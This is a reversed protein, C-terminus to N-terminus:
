PSRVCRFGFNYNWYEPSLNFRYASRVDNGGSAWSGGRLVRWIGTAPGQPNISPSTSYYGGDYWDNVWEWVNGAMDMVGYPSAGSPYAGVRSTDGVCWYNYNLRGCDPADNGWPYKRTDSSGRAAKEWEAETPLRKGEWVCFASAQSWNVNIVPYDAYTSTGYYPSRTYSNVSWPATCGGADVCVKYRANTVEYKDIYYGDLTVTHLPLEDTQWDYVNCSNEAPNSSDCGMQFSGAPILIEEATDSGPSTATPVATPPVATPPVATPPVATPPVATPPVATPPVATPPVATATATPTPPAAGVRMTLLQTVNYEKGRVTAQAAFQVTFSKGGDSARPTWNFIGGSYTSGGPVGTVTPYLLAIEYHDGRFPVDVKYITKVPIRIQQGVTVDIESVPVTKQFQGLPTIFPFEESPPIISVNAHDYGAEVLGVCSYCGPQFPNGQGVVLYGKGLRQAAYNRAERQQEATAGAKRRAGLYFECTADLFQGLTQTRVGHGEGLCAATVPSDSWRNAEIIQEETGVTDSYIGTHGPFWVAQGTCNPANGHMRVLIDGPRLFKGPIEMALYLPKDIYYFQWRPLHEVRVSVGNAALDLAVIEQAEWIDTTEAYAVVNMFQEDFEAAPEEYTLTLTLPATIEIGEGDLSVATMGDTALSTGSIPRQVTITTDRALAGPPILLSADGATVTGGSEAQVYVTSALTDSVVKVVGAIGSVSSLYYPFDGAASFIRGYQGGPAIPESSWTAEAPQADPTGGNAAAQGTPLAILPLCLQGGFPQNSIQIPETTNNVWFVQAGVTVTITAPLTGLDTVVISGSPIDHVGSSTVITGPVQGAVVPYSYQMPQLSASIGNPEQGHSVASASLLWIAVLSAILSTRSTQNLM